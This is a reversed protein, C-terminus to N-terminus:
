DLRMNSVLFDNFWPNEPCDSDKQPSGIESYPKHSPNTSSYLRDQGQYKLTVTDSKGFYRVTTPDVRVVDLTYYNRQFLTWNLLDQGALEGSRSKTLISSASIEMQSSNGIARYQEVITRMELVMRALATDPLDSALAIVTDPPSDDWVGEISGVVGSKRSWITWVKMKRQVGDSPGEMLLRDQGDVRIGISDVTEPFTDFHVRNRSPITTDLPSGFQCWSYTSSPYRVILGDHTRGLIPFTRVEDWNGDTSPPPASTTSDSRDCSFFATVSMLTFAIVHSFRM